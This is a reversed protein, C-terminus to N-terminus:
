RRGAAAVASAASSRSPVNCDGLKTASARKLTGDRCSWRTAGAQQLRWNSGTATGIALRRGRARDNWAREPLGCVARREPSDLRIRGLPARVVNSAAQTSPLALGQVPDPVAPSRQSWGHQLVAVARAAELDAIRLRQTDAGQVARELAELCLGELVRRRLPDTGICRGGLRQREAAHDARSRRGCCRAHLTPTARHVSISRQPAADTAGSTASACGGRAFRDPAFGRM